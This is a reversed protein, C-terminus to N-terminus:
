AADTQEYKAREEKTTNLKLAKMIEVIVLPAVVLIVVEVFHAASLPELSLVTNLGPVNVCAVVILTSLVGAGVLMKNQWPTVKFVSYRSSRINFSHVIQSLALVVFAMTQAQTISFGNKNFPDWNTGVLYAILTLAGVMVGQYCIRWIMGKSFINKNKEAKRKMIDPEAPDVGLALAPLGDTVLNILLLHIALLPTQWNLLTAVFLTIIEGINCSILFSIAKLVNDYIRRGEEVASVVTAFNDDVLILDSADKAVDTGGKGMSCGIDARKLAPADNVGDGTMAVIDGHKQWADVIRVKHEPSVRAYVSIEPVIDYLEEDSMEELEAGTVVRDGENLIDLERAIASATLRHDGTIMVPRIGATHCEDVAVKAEPRPPDIMGVVGYFTLGSEFEASLLEEKTGNIDPMKDLTKGAFALVRLADKAMEVNQCEFREVDKPSLARTGDASKIDTSVSLVEDLGGKVFVDYKGDARQQVTAMRKRDSDFPIEMVRPTEAEWESKSFGKSAGLEVLAVETPDGIAGSAGGVEADSCLVACRLLEGDGLEEVPRAQADDPDAYRLVTMRNQTLTGTKDSCIVTASGLTEVSPLTRVIANRKAMRQVGLALVMTSITPLGEPIAAVALAVASMFMALPEQGYLTGIVFMVACVALAAIGLTKGVADLRKQMPTQVEPADQIMAAIKGVETHMGTEVVVGRGRGYSVLSSSFAMNLRDGIGANAECIVPEKEVPVSEGTLASENIKLSAFDFIRLDAPVSDGADLLVVDGPVLDRAPVTTQGGDRLVKASPASMKELADLTNQAKVEQVTGITANALVLILIVIADVWEHAVFASIAAAILLIIVMFDKFQSFFIKWAAKRKKSVLENGGYEALRKTAEASSLGDPSSSLAAFVDGTESAYPAQPYVPVKESM